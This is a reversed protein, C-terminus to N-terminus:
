QKTIVFKKTMTGGEINNIRIMYIGSAQDSLDFQIKNTLGDNFKNEYVLKGLQDYIRIAAGYLSSNSLYLEFAGTSPNPIVKLDEMNGIAQIGTNTTTDIHHYTVCATGTVGLVQQYNENVVDIVQAICVTSDHLHSFYVRLFNLPALQKFLAQDEDSLETIHGSTAHRIDPTYNGIALNKVSDVTIGGMRLEYGMLKCLPNYISVDVYHHQWDVNGISFVASDLPDYVNYPFQCIHQATQPNTFTTLTGQLNRLCGNLRAADAVTIRGDSNLDNCITTPLTDATMGNLYLLMDSTDRANNINLDGRVKTGNCASACDKVAPGFTDGACDIYAPCQPLTDFARHGLSDRYFRLCVQAWNNDYRTEYHGLKDPKRNWNVRVVLTYNGTDITTFDLWQCALASSYIDGCGSTIGMNGCSYKGIGGGSCELDLVCFGNKFGVQVQNNNHDFLLYEAYGVYHWHQHCPDWVFQHGSTTDPAGIFYDQNGINRIHTTFRLLYREGYGALCGENVYCDGNNVALSDLYMSSKLLPVDLALDPAPCLISPPYVCASTDSVTALPNYTCSATDMCGHIAGQFHIQWPITYGSCATDYQGVRIYYTVHAYLSASIFSQLSSCADDDYYLTGTQNVDYVLGACHDYIYLKTDCQALGCTSIDYLGTTDPTFAYWTNPAPATMTDTHATIANSCNHGAPCNFYTTEFFHYQGGTVVTVSDLKVTYSGNGYACCIGDGYVDFITFRLCSGAPVCITDSNVRGTDLMTNTLDDYLSWSTEQPYSDPTISVIVQKFGVGCIPAAYMHTCALLAIILLLKKIM